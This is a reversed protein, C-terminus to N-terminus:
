NDPVVQLASQELAKNYQQQCSGAQANRVDQLQKVYKDAAEQSPYQQKKATEFNDVYQQDVQGICNKLAQDLEAKKQRERSERLDIESQQQAVEANKQQAVRDAEQM